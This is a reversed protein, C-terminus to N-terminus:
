RGVVPILVRVDGASNHSDFQWIPYHGAAQRIYIEVKDRGTEGLVVMLKIKEVFWIMIILKM